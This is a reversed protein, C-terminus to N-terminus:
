AGRGKPNGGERSRRLGIRATRRGLAKLTRLDGLAQADAAIGFTFPRGPIEVDAATKATIQLFLGSAPGGKHLQGTSHLYRPGYGATTAIRREEIARRRLDALLRDTEPRQQVFAMIALYDGANAEGLLGELSGEPEMEPLAGRMVHEELVADTEEKSRQVDPQDFPNVRLVAGATAVAFQWRFLEAGIDYPDRMDLRLVPHGAEEFRRAAEDLASNDDDDLRLHIFLRDSDYHEPSLVPEDVIPIIGRGDKGTSEAVLQEIWLGLGGLSPSTLLTLKDRGDLAATAITAGLRACPNESAPGDSLCARQMAAARTLLETTDVGTLAAPVLGFLSLASFRGGVDPPNTFLRRFGRDRALEALPTGADTIAAFSHRAADGPVHSVMSEFFDCFLRTELTTGSKSSVLFLTSAPDVSDSAALVADPVTSDLLVPQPFGEHVGITRWIAEAGLASGGMGLLAVHRFGADRVESAFAEIDPVRGRMHDPLSLWGLRNAIEEPDPKWVTHDRRRIRGVLDRDDLDALVTETKM